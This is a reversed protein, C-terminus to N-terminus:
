LTRKEHTTAIVAPPTLHAVVSKVGAGGGTVFNTKTIGDSNREEARNLALAALRSLRLLSTGLQNIDENSLDVGYDNKMIQKLVKISEAKLQM